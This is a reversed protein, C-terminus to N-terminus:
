VARKDVQVLVRFEHFRMERALRCVMAAPATEYARRGFTGERRQRGSGCIGGLTEVVRLGAGGMPVEFRADTRLPKVADTNGSDQNADRIEQLKREVSSQGAPRTAMPSIAPTARTSQLSRNRDFPYL